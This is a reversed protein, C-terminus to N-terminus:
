TVTGTRNTGRVAPAPAFVQRPYAFRAAHRIFQESNTQYRARGPTSRQMVIVNNGPPRHGKITAHIAHIAGCAATRRDARGVM